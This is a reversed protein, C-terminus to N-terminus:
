FLVDFKLFNLKIENGSKFYNDRIDGGYRKFGLAISPAYSISALSWKGMDWRKGGEIDLSMNIGSEDDQGNSEVTARELGVLAGLFISNKIDEHQFNYLIGGRFGFASQMTDSGWDVSTRNFHFAGKWMMGVYQSFNQAYNLNLRFTTEDRDKKKNAGEDHKFLFGGTYALDFADISIIRTQASALSSMLLAVAVVLLKM